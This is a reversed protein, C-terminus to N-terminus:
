PKEGRLTGLKQGNVPTPADALRKEDLLRKLVLKGEHGDAQVLFDVVVVGFFDLRVPLFLQRM